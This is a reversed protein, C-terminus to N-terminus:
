DEEDPSTGGLRYGHQLGRAYEGVNRGVALVYATMARDARRQANLALGAWIIAVIWAVSTMWVGNLGSTVAGAAMGAFMVIYVVVLRKM